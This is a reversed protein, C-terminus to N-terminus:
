DTLTALRELLPTVNQPWPREIGADIAAEQLRKAFPVILIKNEDDFEGNIEEDHRKFNQLFEGKTQAGSSDIYLDGYKVVIHDIPELEDVGVSMLIAKEGLLINLSHALIWCGGTYWFSVDAADYAGLVDGRSLIGQLRRGFKQINM